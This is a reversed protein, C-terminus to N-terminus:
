RIVLTVGAGVYFSGAPGGIITHSDTPGSAGFDGLTLGEPFLMWGARVNLSQAWWKKKSSLVQGRRVGVALPRVIIFPNVVLKNFAITTAGSFRILGVGGGLDIAPHARYAGTFIATKISVNDLKERSADYDFTNEHRGFGVSLGYYRSVNHWNDPDRDCFLYRYDSPRGKSVATAGRVDGAKMAEPTPAKDACLMSFEVGNVLFKGPPSLNELWKLIFWQASAPRASALVLGLVILSISAYRRM